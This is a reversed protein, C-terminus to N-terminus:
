LVRRRGQNPSGANNQPKVPYHISTVSLDIAGVEVGLVTTLFSRLNSRIHGLSDILSETSHELLTSPIPSAVRISIPTSSEDFSASVASLPVDLHQATAGQIASLYAKRAIHTHGPLQTKDNQEAM